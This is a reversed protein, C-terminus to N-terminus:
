SHQMYFPNWLSPRICEPPHNCMNFHLRYQHMSFSICHRYICLWMEPKEIQFFIAFLVKAEQTRLLVWPACLVNRQVEILQETSIQKKVSCKIQQILILLCFISHILFFAQQRNQLCKRVNLDFLFM